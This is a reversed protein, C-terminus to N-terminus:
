QERHERLFREVEAALDDGSVVDPMEDEIAQVLGAVDPRESLGAEIAATYAEVQEDLPGLDVEVETLETLRVLLARAGSPAPNAAVYHPVQAWLGVGPVGAEALAFQVVNQAGTHGVYDHPVAGVEDALAEDTTTVLVSTPIRHSVMAPVGALTCVYSVGLDTFLSALERTFTPWRLSPEPGTCVIVDRGAHGASIEVVPWEIRRTDADLFTRPRTQSLDIVDRLDYRAFVRGGALQGSLWSAALMGSEGADVWGHLAVVLVPDRLAPMRDISLM